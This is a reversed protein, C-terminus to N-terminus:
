QPVSEEARRVERFSIGEGVFCYAGILNVNVDKVWLDPDSELVPKPEILM